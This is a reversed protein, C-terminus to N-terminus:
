SQALSQNALMLFPFFVTWSVFHDSLKLGCAKRNLILNGIRLIGPCETFVCCLISSGILSVLRSVPLPRDFVFRSDLCEQRM